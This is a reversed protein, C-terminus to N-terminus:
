TQTTTMVEGQGLQLTYLKHYLGKHALLEEHKGEEAVRGGEIAVIKDANVVTSLRHAIVFTTRGVMLRDLAEQVAREAETDLSSTAEDLILISANKLIARAITVRQREGGSLKTGREGVVTDYGGPLNAIVDHINAAKAAEIVEEETADPKGYRINDRITENFLFPEQTVIAIHRLLADRKIKRVDIGDIEIAGKDPDYFRPILDLLTSKGAGSPGVLAVIQGVDAQINIDKLVEEQDYAFSVDRYRIEKRVGDIEVADPADEIDPTSDMLEFIREAGPIAEMFNNYAKILAKAPGYMIALNVIFGVIRDLTLGWIGAMVMYGGLLLILPVVANNIFEMLSHSIARIKFIKKAYRFFRQNRQHFRELEQEERRFAKVIRIGTLIQQMSDFVDAISIQRGKSRKRIKKGFKAVPWMIFPATFLAFITVQWSYYFAIGIGGLLQLSNLCLQQFLAEMARKTMEMDNTLRSFLDGLKRDGFFRLSLRLLHAFVKERLDVVIKTSLWRHLYRHILGFVGLAVAIIAAYLAVILVRNWAEQTLVAGAEALDGWDKTIKSVLLARGQNALGYVGMASLMILMYFFYPRALKFLRLVLTTFQKVSVRRAM